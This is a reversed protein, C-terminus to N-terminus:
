TTKKDNIVTQEEYSNSEAVSNSITDDYCYTFFFIILVFVKLFTDLQLDLTHLVLAVGSQM